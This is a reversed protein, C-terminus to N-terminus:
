RGAGHAHACGDVCAGPALTAAFSRLSTASCRTPSPAVTVTVDGANCIEITYNVPDGVKSLADATKTVTIDAPCVIATTETAFAGATLPARTYAPRDDSRRGPVHQLADSREPHHAPVDGACPRGAGAHEGVGIATGGAVTCTVNVPTGGPFPSTETLATVTAPPDGTNAVISFAPSPTGTAGVDSRVTRSRRRQETGPDPM